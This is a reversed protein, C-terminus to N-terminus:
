PRVLPYDKQPSASWEWMSGPYNKAQYGLSILVTTLWGSRIGGTCYVVVPETQKIGLAEIKTVLKAYPLLRGEATLLDKFYLHKAGPIHGGRTEGYPTKGLYERLERSDIMQVGSGMQAKLEDRSITWPRDGSVSRSRDRKVTFDGITVKVPPLNPLARRDGDVMYTQPHGLTRLMWVIRGEEGWGKQPHGMVLVSRNASIGLSQLQRTLEADDELLKGRYPLNPQSFQQWTVSATGRTQGYADLVIAGQEILTKAEAESVIWRDRLAVKAYLSPDSQVQNHPLSPSTQIRGLSQCAGLILLLGINAPTLWPYVRRCTTRQQKVRGSM